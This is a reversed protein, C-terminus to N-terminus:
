VISQVLMESNTIRKRLISVTESDNNLSINESSTEKFLM